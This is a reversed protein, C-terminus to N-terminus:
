AGNPQVVPQLGLHLAVFAVGAAFAAVVRQDAVAGAHLAIGTTARAAATSRDPFGGDCLGPKELTNIIKSLEIHFPYICKM